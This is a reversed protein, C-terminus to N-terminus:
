LGISRSIILKMIENTGAVITMVRMDRWARQIDYEMM